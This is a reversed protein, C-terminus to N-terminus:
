GVDRAWVPLIFVGDAEVTPGEADTSVNRELVEWGEALGIDSKDSM